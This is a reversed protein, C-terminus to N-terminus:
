SPPNLKPPWQRTAILNRVEPPTPPPWPYGAAQFREILMDRIKGEETDPRLRSSAAFDAITSGNAPTHWPSAGSEILFNVMGWRDVSSAVIAPSVGNGRGLDVRAGAALLRKANEGAGVLAAELLPTENNYPLNPDAKAALLLEVLKGSKDRVAPHLPARDPGGNPNAGAALLAKVMAGDDELVAFLLATEGTPSTTNLGNPLRAAMELAERERGEIVAGVFIREAESQFVDLRKDAMGSGGFQKCGALALVILVLSRLSKM